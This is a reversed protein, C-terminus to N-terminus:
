RDLMISKISFRDSSTTPNSSSPQSPTQHKSIYQFCLMYGAYGFKVSRAGPLCFEDATLTKM